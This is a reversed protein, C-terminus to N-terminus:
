TSTPVQSAPRAAASAIEPATPPGRMDEGAVDGEVPSARPIGPEMPPVTAGVFEPTPPPEDIDDEPRM